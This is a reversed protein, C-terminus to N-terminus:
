RAKVHDISAVRQMMELLLPDYKLYTSGTEVAIHYSQLPSFIMKISDSRSYMTSVIAYKYDSFRSAIERCWLRHKQVNPYILLRHDSAEIWAIGRSRQLAELINACCVRMDVEVISSSSIRRYNYARLGDPSIMSCTPTTQQYTNEQRQAAWGHDQPVM